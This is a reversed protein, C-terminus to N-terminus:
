ENDIEDENEKNLKSVLEALHRKARELGDSSRFPKGDFTRVYGKSKIVYSIGPAAILDARNYSLGEAHDALIEEDRRLKATARCRTTLLVKISFRKPPERSNAGDFKPFPPTKNLGLQVYRMNYDESQDDTNTFRVVTYVKGVNAMQSLREYDDVAEAMTNYRGVFREGNRTIKTIFRNGNSFIHPHNVPTYSVM